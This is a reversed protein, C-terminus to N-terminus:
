QAARARADPGPSRPRVLPDHVDVHPERRLRDILDRAAAEDVDAEIMDTFVDFLAPPM